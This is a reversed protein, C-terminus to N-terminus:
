NPIGGKEQHSLKDQRRQSLSLIDELARQM